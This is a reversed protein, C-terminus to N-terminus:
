EYIALGSEHLTKGDLYYNPLDYGKSQLYQYAFLSSMGNDHVSTGYVRFYGVSNNHLLIRVENNSFKDCLCVWYDNRHIVWKNGRSFTNAVEIADEDTIKDLPKLILKLNEVNFDHFHGDKDEFCGFSNKLSVKYLLGNSKSLSNSIVNQGLYQAFVKAKTENSIEMM